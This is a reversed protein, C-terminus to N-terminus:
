ALWPSVLLKATNRYINDAGNANKEAQLLSLGTGELSPPVVLLDPVLGLPKGNDGKFSMIAARAAAYSTADLTAKSGYAMQWLGYGVNCRADVGYVFKKSNFVNEDTENTMSVFKYGKRDQFIIPKVMRNTCLLFWPTGSGGGHNSVSQAVGAADLVPHDTDFFYQGDYCVGTFGAALLAFVLEDPHTKADQGLNAILPTYVGYSDDEVDDRDIGVTNEFSKNVITFNHTMLNQLVRDGIWERFRTISGLWAYVEQKTTSPVRMAIQEWQSQAGMYAANFATKFGTFMSALNARNVVLGALGITMAAGSSLEPLRSADAAPQGFMVALALAFAGLAIGVLTFTRTRNM